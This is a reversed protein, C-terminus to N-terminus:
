AREIYVSTRTDIKIKDGEEIFFPVMIRLGSETFAVKSGGSATNGKVNPECEAISMIVTTPLEVDLIEGDPTMAITVEMNERMLLEKEGITAAEVNMQEYNELDMLVFFGGDRYLYEKRTREVRVEDFNDSDRFTYDVVKDSRLNKLKSRMFAPGKGPKVHLFEIVEWLEGKLDIVMGNRIDAMTAM